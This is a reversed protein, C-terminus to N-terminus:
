QRVGSWSSFYPFGRGAEGHMHPNGDIVDITGNLDVTFAGGSPLVYEVNCAIRFGSSVFCRGGAIRGYVVEDVGVDEGGELTGVGNAAIELAMPAHSPCSCDLSDGFVGPSASFTVEYSGNFRQPQADVARMLRITVDDMSGVGLQMTGDLQVIADHRTVSLETTADSVFVDGGYIGSGTASIHGDATVDGSFTVATHSDLEADIAVHRADFLQIVAVSADHALPPGFIDYVGPLEASEAPATPRGARDGAGDGCGYVVGGVAFMCGLWVVRTLM